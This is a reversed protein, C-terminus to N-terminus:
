AARKWRSSEITFRKAMKAAKIKRDAVRLLIEKTQEEKRAAAVLARALKDLSGSLAATKANEVRSLHSPGVDLLAAFEKAPFGAFKRLFRLEDGRLLGPKKILDLAIVEHLEGIRPIIPSETKCKPCYEIKIGVLFLDKIGSVDFRYPKDTTAIQEVAEGECEECRM